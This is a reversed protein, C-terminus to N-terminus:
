GVSLSSLGQALGSMEEDEEVFKSDVYGALQCHRIVTKTSLESRQVSILANERLIPKLSELAAQLNTGFSELVLTIITMDGAEIAERQQHFTENTIQCALLVCCISIQPISFRSSIDSLYALIVLTRIVRETLENYTQGYVMALDYITTTYLDIGIVRLIDQQINILEEEFYNLEKLEVIQNPYVSLERTLASALLLCCTGILHYKSITIRKLSCYRELIYYMIALTRDDMEFEGIVLTHLTTYVISHVNIPIFTRSPAMQQPLRISLQTSCDLTTADQASLCVSSSLLQRASNLWTNNSVIEYITPRKNPDSVLLSNLFDQEQINLPMRTDGDYYSYRTPLTSSIEAVSEYRSYGNKRVIKRLSKLKEPSWEPLKTVGPWSQEDPLGLRHFILYLVENVTGGSFLNRGTLLEGVICGLAWVDANPTYEGGLLLEPPRYWGSFYASRNVGEYCRNMTALGFDAIVIRLPCNEEEYVLINEPKYDGNLVDQSQIYAIGRAIQLTIYKSTEVDIGPTHPTWPTKTWERTIYQRLNMGAVSLVLGFSKKSMVADLLAVVNPHRMRVLIAMEQLANPDVAHDEIYALKVAVDGKTTQVRWVVGFVGSGLKTPKSLAKIPQGTLISRLDEDYEAEEDVEEILEEEEESIPPKPPAEM